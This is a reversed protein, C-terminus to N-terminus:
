EDLEFPRSQVDAVVNDKGEWYDSKFQCAQLVMFWRALREGIDKHTKLRQSGNYHHVSNFGHRGTSLNCRGQGIALRGEGYRELEAACRLAERFRISSAQRFRGCASPVVNDRNMRPKRRMTYFVIFTSHILILACILARTVAYFATIAEDTM